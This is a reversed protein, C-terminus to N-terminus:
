NVLIIHSYAESIGAGIGFHATRLFVAEGFLFLLFYLDVNQVIIDVLFNFGISIM